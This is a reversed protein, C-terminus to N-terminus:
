PVRINSSLIDALTEVYPPRLISTHDGPIEILSWDGTFHRSWVVRHLARVADNENDQAVVVLARGPYPKMRYRPQVVAGQRYFRSPRREISDMHPALFNRLDRLSARIGGTFAYEPQEGGPPTTDIAAVMEVTQGLRILTTAMELAVLGGMSHGALRYPGNPQISRLARVHRRAIRQISYDPWGRGELGQAQLGYVPTESKLCRALSAFYLAYAGGGAVLFIPTGHGSARLPYHGTPATRRSLLADAFEAPTPAIALLGTTLLESSVGLEAGVIAFLKQAARSGGGAATFDDHRGIPRGLARHFAGLV